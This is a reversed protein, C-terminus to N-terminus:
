CVKKSKRGSIKQYAYLASNSFTESAKETAFSEIPRYIEPRFKKLELAFDQIVNSKDKFSTANKLGLSYKQALLDLEKRNKEIEETNKGAFKYAKDFSSRLSLESDELHAQATQYQRHISYIEEKENESLNKMEEPKSIINEYIKEKEPNIRSLINDAKEKDFLVKNTETDWQTHNKIELFREPSYDDFFPPTPLYRKDNKIPAVEGTEQNVALLTEYEKKRNQGEGSYKWTSGYFNSGHITIPVNEGVGISSTKDIVDMLRKEVIKQKFENWGREDFGAPDMEQIPAHVTVKSGALKAQRGIEKFQEESMSEFVRPSLTGIEAAMLGSNLKQGLEGLQNATRPDLSMGMESAKLLNAKGLYNSPEIEGPKFTSYGPQYLNNIIYDGKKM